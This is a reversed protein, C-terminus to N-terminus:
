GNTCVHEASPNDFARKLCQGLRLQGYYNPHFSEQLNGQVVGSLFRFWEANAPAAGHQTQPNRMERGALASTMDLYEAKEERAVKRISDSIAPAVWDHLWRMDGLYLPTGESIATDYGDGRNRFEDPLPSPYSQVILRYDGNRYGAEAMTERIKAVARRVAERMGPLRQQIAAQEEEACRKGSAWDKGCQALVGSLEVDNGGISLVVAEVTNQRAVEALQDGQPQEGKFPTDVINNSQAGSCALNISKIGSGEDLSESRNDDIEKHGFANFVEASDSRHCGRDGGWGSGTHTTGYVKTADYSVGGTWARDTGDRDGTMTNSNGKWRGGEGSIFSDGLSVVARPGHPRPQRAAVEGTGGILM